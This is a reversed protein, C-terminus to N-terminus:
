ANIRKPIGNIIKYYTDFSKNIEIPSNRNFFSSVVFNMVNPKDENDFRCDMEHLVFIETDLLESIQILKEYDLTIDLDGFWIKEYRGDIKQIINANFIVINEPHDRRYGSKSFSIMRGEYGIVSSIIETPNIM